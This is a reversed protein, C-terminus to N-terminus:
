ASAPKSQDGATSLKPQDGVSAIGVRALMRALYVGLAGQLIFGSLFATVLIVAFWVIRPETVFDSGYILFFVPWSLAPGIGSGIAWPLWSSPYKAEGAVLVLPIAVCLMLILLGAGNPDGFLWRVVGVILAAVVVVGGNRRLYGAVVTLTHTLGQPIAFSMFGATGLIPAMAIGLWGLGILIIWAANLAGLVSAIVIDQVDMRLRYREIISMM